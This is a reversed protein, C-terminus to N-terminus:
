LGEYLEISGTEQIKKPKLARHNYFELKDYIVSYSRKQAGVKIEVLEFRTRLDQWVTARIQKGPESYFYEKGPDGIFEKYIALEHKYATDSSYIFQISIIKNERSVQLNISDSGSFFGPKFTFGYRGGASLAVRDMIPIILPKYDAVNGLLNLTKTMDNSIYVRRFNNLLTDNVPPKEKNLAPIGQAKCVSTVCTIVVLVWTIKSYMKKM